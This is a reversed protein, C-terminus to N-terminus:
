ATGDARAIAALALHIGRVMDQPDEEEGEPKDRWGMRNKMWWILSTPDPPYYKGHKKFGVARHYLAILVRADAYGKGTAIADEFDPHEARWNEITAKAVGFAAALHENTGGLVCVIRAVSVFRPDYKSPRGAM